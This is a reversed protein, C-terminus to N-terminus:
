MGLVVLSVVVLALGAIGAPARAAAAGANKNTQALTSSAFGSLAKSLKAFDPTGLGTVPDWGERAAFGSTGCGPNSGQTVDNFAGVARSYLLPNVFGLPGKGGNLLGDNLLALVAAFAPASASTGSVTSTQGNMRVVFREGQMAVDPYARGSANFRGAYTAGQAALYGAVAGDQYAPRAFLNSFGGSTFSAAVEPGQGTTSGVATVYPCGAPFTPVFPQDTCQAPNNIFTGAVGSDGSAYVVSVGRAGLQAYLNCLQTALQTFGANDAPESFGYSTSFVLPPTEMDLLFNAMDIFKDITIAGNSSTDVTILSSPVDTAISVMYQVDLTAESTGTSPPVFSDVHQVSYGQVGKMDPRAQSIFTGLDSDLANEDGFSSVAISNGEASARGTPINYMKMLCEPTVVKGCLEQPIQFDDRARLGRKSKSKSQAPTTFAEVDVTPADPSPAIFQTTPYIWAVHDHVSAPLSYALTRIMTKNSGTHVYSTFNADLLANAQHVTLHLDLMDGSASAVSTSINNKGLWANVAQVSDQSPAVLAAVQAKSLHRGYNASDPDSVDMLADHLAPVNTQPMALMFRLTQNAAPAPGSPSYGKPVAPHEDRVIMESRTIISPRGLSLTVLSFVFLAATM